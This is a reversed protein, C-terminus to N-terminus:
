THRASRHPTKRAGRTVVVKLSIQIAVVTPNAAINVIPRKPSTTRGNTSGIRSLRTFGAADKTVMMISRSYSKIETARIKAKLRRHNEGGPLERESDVRMGMDPAAITM